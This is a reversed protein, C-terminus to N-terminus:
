LMRNSPSIRQSLIQHSSRAEELRNRVRIDKAKQMYPDKMPMGVRAQKEIGSPGLDIEYDTVPNFKNM